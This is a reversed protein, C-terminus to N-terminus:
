WLIYFKMGILLLFIRNTYEIQVLGMRNLNEVKKKLLFELGHRPQGDPATSPTESTNSQLVWQKRM